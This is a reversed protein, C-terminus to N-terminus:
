QTIPRAKRRNSKRNVLVDRAAFIDSAAESAITEIAVKDEPTLERDEAAYHRIKRMLRAVHYIANTAHDIENAGEAHSPDSWTVAVPLEALMRYVLRHRAEDSQIGTVVAYFDVVDPWSDRRVWRRVTSESRRTLQAIETVTTLQEDILVQLIGREPLKRGQLRPDTAM